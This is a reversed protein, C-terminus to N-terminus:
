YLKYKIIYVKQKEIENYNIVMNALDSYSERQIGMRKNFIFWKDGQITKWIQDNIYNWHEGTKELMISGYQLCLILEDFYKSNVIYGSATRCTNSTSLLDDYINKSDYLYSFMVAKFDLNKDFFSKINNKFIDEEVIFQFDDEFIMINKYNRERALKIVNLHSKTCGLCPLQPIYVAEFREIKSSDFNMKNFESNIQEYRDKRHSLNIYFIRDIKDM